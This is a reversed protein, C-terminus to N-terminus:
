GHAEGNTLYWTQKITYHCTQYRWTFVTTFNHNKNAPDQSAQDPRRSATGVGAHLRESRRARCPCGRSESFCKRKGVRFHSHHMRLRTIKTETTCSHLLMHKERVRQRQSLMCTTLEVKTSDTLYDGKSRPFHSQWKFWYHFDYFWGCCLGNLMIREFATRKGKRARPPNTNLINRGAYLRQPRNEGQAAPSSRAAARVASRSGTVRRRQNECEM